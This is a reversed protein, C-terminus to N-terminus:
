LVSGQDDQQSIQNSILRDLLKTKMRALIEKANSERALNNEEQPDLQLDYLALQDPPLDVPRGFAPGNFPPKLYKQRTDQLLDGYMLKYRGDFLMKDSGMEAFAAERHTETEGTLIPRFSQGRDQVHNPVEAFDCITTGLDILEALANSQQDAKIGPGAAILPVHVWGEYLCVKGELGHDGAMDGHDSSYLIVTNESLGASELAEMFKGVCADVESTCAALAKWRAEDQAGGGAPRPVQTSAYLDRFEAPADLPPHPGVLGFHLYFPRSRDVQSLYDIAQQTIFADQTDAPDWPWPEHETATGLSGWRGSWERYPELLGKSKLHETFRCRCAIAGSGQKGSTECVHQYGLEKVEDEHALFDAEMVHVHHHLKGVLATQYGGERLARVFSPAGPPIRHRNTYCGTNMPYLGTTISIRQPVCLPTTSYAQEISTGRQALADLHPTVLESRLRGLFDWRHHDSLILVINPRRATM